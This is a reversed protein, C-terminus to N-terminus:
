TIVEKHNLNDIEIEIRKIQNSWFKFDLNLNEKAIVM